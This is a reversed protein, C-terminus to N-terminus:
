CLGTVHCKQTLRLFNWYQYRVSIYTDMFQLIEYVAMGAYIKVAARYGLLIIIDEEFRNCLKQVATSSNTAIVNNNVCNRKPWIM